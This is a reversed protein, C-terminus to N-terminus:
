DVSESGPLLPKYGFCAGTSAHFIKMERQQKSIWDVLNKNLQVYSDSSERSYPARSGDAALNIIHTSNADFQWNTQLDHEIIRSLPLLREPIKYTLGNRTLLIIERPLLTKDLKGLFEVISRGVFGNSGTILISDAAQLNLIQALILILALSHSLEEILKM